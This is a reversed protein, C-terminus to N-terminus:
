RSDAEAEIAFTKRKRDIKKLRFGTLMPELEKESANKKERMYAIAGNILMTNSSITDGARRCGSAEQEIRKIGERQKSISQRLREMEVTNKPAGSSEVSCLEGIAKSMSECPKKELGSYKALEALAMDVPIGDKTYLIVDTKKRSLEIIEIVRRKVADLEEQGVDKITAKPDLGARAISDRIYITGIGLRRSLCAGLQAGADAAPVAKFEKELADADLFDISENKPAMYREGKRLSREAFDHPRYVLSILMSSDALVMNGQGFMELILNLAEEKKGLEIRIIRDNSYLSVSRIVAGSIKKRVAMAFNTAEERVEFTDSLIAYYPVFININSKQGSGSVKIRFKNDDIEYFQDIYSGSTADLEGALRSLEIISLARVM